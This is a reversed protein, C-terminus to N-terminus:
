RGVARDIREELARATRAIADARSGHGRERARAEDFWMRALRRLMALVDGHTM